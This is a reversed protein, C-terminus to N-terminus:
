SWVQESSNNLLESKQKCLQTFREPGAHSLYGSSVCALPEHTEFRGLSKAPQGQRHVYPPPLPERAWVMRAWLMM